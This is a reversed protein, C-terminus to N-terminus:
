RLGSVQSVDEPSTRTSASAHERAPEVPARGDAAHRGAAEIGEAATSSGRGFAELEGALHLLGALAVFVVTTSVRGVSTGIHWGLETPAIWYAWVIMASILAMSGLYFLAVRRAAGAILAALVVAVGLPLVYTWATQDDLADVLGAIAAPVRGTREALYLPNLGQAVPIAGEVGNAAVWIRWPAVLALFGAVAIGLPRLAARAPHGREFAVIVAAVALAAVAAMLGENKTGAAAALLLAALALDGPRREALWIGLALMGLGLFLAMPVDAYVTLLQGWVGPAAAALLLVPAWIAPRTVRHALFAAAWFFGVLLVWFQVHIAVSDIGGMARFHVAEWLPMLLPYDPSTFRYVEGAFFEPRLAGYHYLVAAKRMWMTWADWAILPTVAAKALGVLAFTGFIAVFVAIVWGDASLRGALARPGARRVASREGEVRAGGSPAQRADRPGLLADLSPRAIRRGRRRGEGMLATAVGAGAVVISLLAVTPLGFPVGVTMLALTLLLVAATGAMFALGAAALMRLPSRPLLRFGCLLGLGAVLLLADVGFSPLHLLTM